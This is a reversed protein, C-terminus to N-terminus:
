EILMAGLMTVVIVADPAQEIKLDPMAHAEFSFRVILNAFWDHLQRRRPLSNGGYISNEESETSAAIRTIEVKHADETKNTKEREEGCEFRKALLRKKVGVLPRGQSVLRAAGGCVLVKAIQGGEMADGCRRFKVLRRLENQLAGALVSQGVSM